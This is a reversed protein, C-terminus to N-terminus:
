RRFRTLLKKDCGWGGGGAGTAALLGTGVPRVRAADLFSAARDLVAVLALAIVLALLPTVGLTRMAQPAEFPFTLIGGAMSVAAWGLLLMSRWDFPRVVLLALGLVLLLGSAADLMPAGPLNHRGNLDGAIHFMLAHKQLNTWLEALKQAQSVPENLILTQSLRGNFAAPDQVAFVLVPLAALAAAGGFATVRGVTTALRWRGLLAACSLLALGVVTAILLPMGIWIVREGVDTREHDPPPLASEDAM